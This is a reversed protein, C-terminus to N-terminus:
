HDSARPCTHVRVGIGKGISLKVQDTAELIVRSLIGSYEDLLVEPDSAVWPDVGLFNVDWDETCERTFKRWVEPGHASTMIIGVCMLIYIERLELIFIGHEEGFYFHLGLFFALGRWYNACQALLWNITIRKIYKYKWVHVLPVTM